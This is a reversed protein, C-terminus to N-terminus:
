PQHVIHIKCAIPDGSENLGISFRVPDGVRLNGFGANELESFHFFLNKPDHHIFGYGNKLAAIESHLIDVKGGADGVGNDEYDFTLDDDEGVSTPPAGIRRAFLNEVVQIDMSSPSEVIETMNVPYTVEELLEQSVRTVSQNGLSDIYDFNWSLVMVRAGLTNLKRVLPVYDGDSTILAVVDFQKLQTLEYAELALWVDIGKEEHRGGSTRVPLYHTTVGRWMLVDEFVRDRFLMNGRRQVEQAPLRGRFFHADAIQCDRVNLGETSAVYHRIFDHLGGISLRRLRSHYFAYYNNIHLFYNGDYFVAIKTLRSISAM